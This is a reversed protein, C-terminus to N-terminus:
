FHIIQVKLAIFRRFSESAIAFFAFQHLLRIKPICHKSLGTETGIILIEHYKANRRFQFSCICDANSIEFVSIEFNVKLNFFITLYM